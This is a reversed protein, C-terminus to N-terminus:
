PWNTFLLRVSRCTESRRMNLDIVQPTVDELGSTMCRLTASGALVAESIEQGAAGQGERIVTMEPRAPIPPEIPTTSDGDNDVDFQHSVWASIQSGTQRRVWVRYEGPELPQAISHTLREGTQSIGSAFYVKSNSAGESVIQDLWVEYEATQAHESDTWQVEVSSFDDNRTTEIEAALGTIALLCRPELVDVATNRWSQGSRRRRRRCFIDKITALHLKSRVM